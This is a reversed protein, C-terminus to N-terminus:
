LCFLKLKGEAEAMEARGPFAERRLLKSQWTFRLGLIVPSDQFRQMSLPAMLLLGMRSKKILQGARGLSYERAFTM